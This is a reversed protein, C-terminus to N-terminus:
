IFHEHSEKGCQSFEGHLKFHDSTRLQRLLSWYFEPEIKECSQSKGNKIYLSASQTKEDSIYRQTILEKTGSPIILTRKNIGVSNEDGIESLNLQIDKGSNPAVQFYFRKEATLNKGNEGNTYKAPTSSSM